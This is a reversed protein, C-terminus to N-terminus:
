CSVAVGFGPQGPGPLPTVALAPDVYAWCDACVSGWTRDTLVPAGCCNTVYTPWGAVLRFPRGRQDVYTREQNM